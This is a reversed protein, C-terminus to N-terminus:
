ADTPWLIEIHSNNFDPDDMDGGHACRMGGPLSQMKIEQGEPVLGGFAQFEILRNFLDVVGNFHEPSVGHVSLDPRGFKRMGRTHVWKTRPGEDSVLIVVHERPLAAAPGFVTTRWKEPAWWKFRQPDYIAVGGADLLGTLLGITNRFYNLSTEDAVAGQVIVCTTQAEVEDALDPEEKRLENWLYGQRFEDLVEPHSNPGYSSIDVGKPISDCRYKSRSLRLQNADSGFVVYFLFPSEGGESYHKRDWDELDTTM